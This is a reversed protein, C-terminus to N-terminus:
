GSSCALHIRERAHDTNHRELNILFNKASHYSILLYERNEPFLKSRYTNILLSTILRTRILDTLLDMEMSQLPNIAHYGAILPLVGALPDDGDSLQYAAAIALDIILPSRVLDGFDIIGSIQDPQKEDLLVNGLNLDNYIVQTRLTDLTPKVELIFRDLTQSILKRLAPDEVHVLLGQLNSARKMDWLQLPNSAPHEFDELALDLRALLRGLRHLLGADSIATESVTGELWSLMRVIHTGSNGEVVCHLDGDSAPIIGPLPISADRDAIHLMARNQFDIAKQQDTRNAIKLTYRKGDDADLRFNQDRDSALSRVQGRMGYHRAAIQVAAADSFAPATTTLLKRIEAQTLDTNM